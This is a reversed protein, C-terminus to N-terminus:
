TRPRSTLCLRLPRTRPRPQPSTPFHGPTTQFFLTLDDGDGNASVLDLQGDGNLDAAEISYPFRTTVQNGLTIDPNVPFDGSATQFFVTLNHGSRNASAIDVLCDGNLDAAVVSIPLSTTSPGGLYRSPAEPFQGQSTQFYVVLHDALGNASVLDLLHDGNLDAAAVSFPLSGPSPDSLSLSPTTPFGGSSAQFYVTLNHLTPISAVIDLLGDGNLDAAQVDNPPYAGLTLVPDVNFQGVSTQLFLSTGLNDGAILDILGDNNLDGLTVSTGAQSTSFDATTAFQGLGTQLFVSLHSGGGGNASILDLLGDGNLDAAAASTPSFTPADGISISSSSPFQGPGSQFHVALRGDTTSTSVLDLQGDGNLDAGQVSLPRFVEGLELSPSAPFQGTSMQFFVVLSSECAAVLDLLGDGNLDVADVAQPRNTTSTGGLVHDPSLSFEGPSTQLFVTLNDSVDNASVLDLLGDGNLDATRVFLPGSNYLSSGITLSPSTPFEGPSTQFFVTLNDANVNASVLDVLGDGNLDAAAVSAPTRPGPGGGVSLSLDPQAPFQGSQGPTTQFFLNLTDWVTSVTVLDLLGDDNLDATAM